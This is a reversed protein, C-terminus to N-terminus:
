HSHIYWYGCYGLTKRYYPADENQLGLGSLQTYDFGANSYVGRGHPTEKDGGADSMNDKDGNGKSTGSIVDEVKKSLEEKMKFMEDQMKKMEEQFMKTQDDMMERSIQKALETAAEDMKNTESM